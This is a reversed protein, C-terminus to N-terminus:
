EDGSREAVEKAALREIDGGDGGNEQEYGTWGYQIGLAVDDIAPGIEGGAAGQADAKNEDEHGHGQSRRLFDDAQSSSTIFGKKM